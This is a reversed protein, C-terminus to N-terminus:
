LGIADDIVHGIQGIAKAITGDVGLKLGAGARDMQGLDLGALLHLLTPVTRERMGIIQRRGIM